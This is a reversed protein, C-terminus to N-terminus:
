ILVDKLRASFGKICHAAVVFTRLSWYFYEMGGGQYVKWFILRLWFSIMLVGVAFLAFDQFEPYSMLNPSILDSHLVMLFFM